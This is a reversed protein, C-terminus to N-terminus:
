MIQKNTICERPSGLTYYRTRHISKKRVSAYKFTVSFEIHKYWAHGRWLGRAVRTHSLWAFASLSKGVSPLPFKDALPSFQLIFVNMM